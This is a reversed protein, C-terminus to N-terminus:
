PTVRVLLLLFDNTSSPIVVLSNFVQPTLPAVSARSLLFRRTQADQFSQTGIKGYVREIMAMSTDAVWALCPCRNLGGPGRSVRRLAPIVDLSPRPSRTRNRNKTARKVRYGPTMRHLTHRDSRVVGAMPYPEPPGPGSPVLAPGATARGSSAPGVDTVEPLIPIM